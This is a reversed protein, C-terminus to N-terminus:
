YYTRKRLFGHRYSIYLKLDKRDYLKRKVAVVTEDDYDDKEDNIYFFVVDLGIEVNCLGQCDGYVRMSEDVERLVSPASLLGLM